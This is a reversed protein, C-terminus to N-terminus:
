PAVNRREQRDVTEKGNEPEGRRTQAGTDAEEHQEGKDDRRRHLKDAHIQHECAEDKRRERGASALAM